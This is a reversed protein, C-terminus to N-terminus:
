KLDLWREYDAPYREIWDAVTIFFPCEVSIPMKKESFPAHVCCIGDVAMSGYLEFDMWGCLDCRYKATEETLGGYGCSPCEPLGEFFDGLRSTYIRYGCERCIVEYRIPNREHVRFVAWTSSM